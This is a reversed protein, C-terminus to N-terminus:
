QFFGIQDNSVSPTIVYSNSLSGFRAPYAYNALTSQFAALGLPGSTVNATFGTLVIADFINPAVSAAGALM